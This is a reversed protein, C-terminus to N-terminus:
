LQDVSVARREGKQLNDKAEPPVGHRNLRLTGCAEFGRSFNQMFNLHYSFITLISIVCVPELLHLVVGGTAGFESELTDDNGVHKCM